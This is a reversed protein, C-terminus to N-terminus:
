QCAIRGALGTTQSGGATVAGTIPQGGDPFMRCIAPQREHLSTVTSTESLSNVVNGAAM